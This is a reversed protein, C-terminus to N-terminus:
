LCISLDVPSRLCVIDCFNLLEEQILARAELESVAVLQHTERHMVIMAIVVKKLGLTMSPREISGIM